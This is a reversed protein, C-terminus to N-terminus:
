RNVPETTPAAASSIDAVAEEAAKRRGGMRTCALCRALLLGSRLRLRLKTYNVGCLVFSRVFSVFRRCSSPRHSTRGSTSLTRVFPAFLVSGSQLTIANEVNSFFM